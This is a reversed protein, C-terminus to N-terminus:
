IYGGVGSGGWSHFGSSDRSLAVMQLFLCVVRTSLPAMPNWQTESVQDTGCGANFVLVTTGLTGLLSSDVEAEALVLLSGILFPLYQLSLLDM